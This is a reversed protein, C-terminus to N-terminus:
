LYQTSPNKIDLLIIFVYGLSVIKNYNHGNNNENIYNTIIYVDINLLLLLM